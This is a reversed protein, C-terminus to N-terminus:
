IKCIKLTSGLDVSFGPYLPETFIVESRHLLIFEEDRTNVSYFSLVGEQYRLHVGLKNSSVRPIHARELNNHWFRCGSSCCILKWSLNNHGFCCDNGSGRRQISRYSVAVEVIGGDWEVEWYSDDTLGQKCLAQPYYTFRDIHDPHAQDSAGWSLERNSSSLSLCAAITNSDIDLRKNKFKAMLYQRSTVPNLKRPLLIDSYENLYLKLKPIDNINKMKDKQNQVFETLKEVRTHVDGFAPLNGFALCAQLFQIPEETQFIQTLETNRKNLEAVESKLQRLQTNVWYLGAKEEEGVKERVYAIKKEMATVYLRISEMCLRQFEDCVEWATDKISNAVVKLEMIKKESDMVRGVIEQKTRQLQREMAEMQETVAITDHGQHGDVVCLACLFLRDTRCHIELLKNHRECIVQKNSPSAQILKHKKLPPVEFHSKLHIQCYSVLCTLCFKCASRKEGTCIDCLVGWLGDFSGSDDAASAESTKKHEELLEALLANRNLTPRPSFTQRCQPCSLAAHEAFKRDWYTSICKKCYSHGCGITVPDELLHM